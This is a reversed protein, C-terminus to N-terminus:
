LACVELHQLRNEVSALKVDREKVASDDFGTHHRRTAPTHRTHSVSTKPAMASTGLSSGSDHGGMLRQREQQEASKRAMASTGFFSCSDYRGIMHHSRRQETDLREQSSEPSMDSTGLFSSPDYGMGEIM